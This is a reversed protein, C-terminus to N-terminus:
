VNPFLSVFAKIIHPFSRIMKFGLIKSASYAVQLLEYEDESLGKWWTLPLAELQSLIKFISLNTESYYGQFQSEREWCQNIKEKAGESLPPVKLETM